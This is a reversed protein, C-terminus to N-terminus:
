NHTFELEKVKVFQELEKKQTLLNRADQGDKIVTVWVPALENSNELTGLDEGNMKANLIRTSSSANQALNSFMPFHNVFTPQPLFPGIKSAELEKNFQSSNEIDEQHGRGKLDDINSSSQLLIKPVEEIAQLRFVLACLTQGM